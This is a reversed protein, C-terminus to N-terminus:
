LLLAEKVQYLNYHNLHMHTYHGHLHFNDFNLKSINPDYLLEKRFYNHNIWYENIDIRIDFTFGNKILINRCEEDKEINNGDLEIIIIYIPISFDFTDLVIKESGEVDIIFLDIYSFNSKNVVESIPMCDVYYENQTDLGHTKIHKETLNNTLGATLGTGVFLSKNKNYNIALNYNFSDPRNIILENFRESPEILIGKFGLYREFFLSNSCYIGDYAGLEIFTGTTNYKNIYRNYIYIDEGLASFFIFM